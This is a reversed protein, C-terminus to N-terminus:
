ELRTPRDPKELWNPTADAGIIRCKTCVKRPGDDPLARHLRSALSRVLIKGTCLLRGHRHIVNVYSFSVLCDIGSSDFKRISFRSFAV